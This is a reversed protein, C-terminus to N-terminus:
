LYQRFWFCALSTVCQEHEEGKRGSGYNKSLPLSSLSHGCCFRLTLFLSVEMDEKVQEQQDRLEGFADIILGLTLYLCSKIKLLWFIIIFNVAGQSIRRLSLVM